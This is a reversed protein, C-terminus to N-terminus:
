AAAIQLACRVVAVTDRPRSWIQDDTIRVVRFGAAALDADRRRDAERDLKSGHHISSDIEIILRRDPYAFDVRGVWRDDGVDLQRVPEPLGGSRLLSLFRAELGSEPAVYDVGRQALLSRMLTSGARGHEALESTVRQLAVITILRRSLANDVARELRGPRVAGALDFLTRAVRTLPIGGRDALHSLPLCRPEHLIALDTAHRSRRRPRSVDIEEDVFGPLRWLRAASQHSVVAGAGADLAAAM